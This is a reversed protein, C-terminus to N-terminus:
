HRHRGERQNAGLHLPSKCVGVCVLSTRLHRNQCCIAECAIWDALFIKVLFASKGGAAAHVICTQGRKLPFTSTVLYHATLGQTVVAVAQATSIDDPIEFTQKWPVSTYEAYTDTGYYAVRTALEVESPVDSGIAVISGAGEVGLIFPTARPYLGNRHYTDIMSISAFSSCNLTNWTLKWTVLTQFLM